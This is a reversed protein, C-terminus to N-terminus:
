IGFECLYGMATHGYFFPNARIDMDMWLLEGDLQRCMKAYVSMSMGWWPSLSACLCIGTYVRIHIYIVICTATCRDSMYFLQCIFERPVFLLPRMEPKAHIENTANTTTSWWAILELCILLMLSRKTQIPVFHRKTSRQCLIAFM